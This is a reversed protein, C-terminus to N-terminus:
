KTKLNRQRVDQRTSDEEAYLLKVVFLFEFNRMKADGSFSFNASEDNGRLTGESKSFNLAVSLNFLNFGIGHLLYPLEM